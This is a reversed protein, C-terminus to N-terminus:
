FVSPRCLRHYRILRNISIRSLNIYYWITIDSICLNSSVMPSLFTSSDLKAFATTDMSSLSVSSLSRKIKKREKYKKSEARFTYAVIIYEILSLFISVVLLSCTLKYYFWNIYVYRCLWCVLSWHGQHLAGKSPGSSRGELRHSPRSTYYCLPNHSCSTLHDGGLIFALIHGRHAYQPLICDAYLPGM